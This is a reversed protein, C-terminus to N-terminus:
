LCIFPVLTRHLYDHRTEVSSLLPVLNSENAVSRRREGLRGWIGSAVAVVEWCLASIHRVREASQHPDPRIPASSQAVWSVASGSETLSDPMSNFLLSACPIIGDMMMMIMMM